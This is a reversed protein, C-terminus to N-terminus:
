PAYEAAATALHIAGLADAEFNGVRDRFPIPVEHRCAPREVSDVHVGLPDRGVRTKIAAAVRSNAARSPIM